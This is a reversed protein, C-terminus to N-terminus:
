RRKLDLYRYAFVTTEDLEDPLDVCLPGDLLHLPERYASATNTETPPATLTLRSRPRTYKPEHHRYVFGCLGSSLGRLSGCELGVNRGSDVRIRDMVFLELVELTLHLQLHRLTGGLPLEGVNRIGLLVVQEGPFGERRERSLGSINESLPIGQIVVLHVHSPVLLRDFHVRRTGARGTITRVESFARRRGVATWPTKVLM